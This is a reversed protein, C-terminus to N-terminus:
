INIRAEDEELNFVYLFTLMPTFLAVFLYHYFITKKKEIKRNDKKFFM